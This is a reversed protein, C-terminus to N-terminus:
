NQNRDLLKEKRWAINDKRLNPKWPKLKNHLLVRKASALLWYKEWICGRMETTWIQALGLIYLHSIVEYYRQKWVFFMSTISISKWTVQCLLKIQHLADCCNLQTCNPVMEKLASGRLACLIVMKSWGIWFEDKKFPVKPMELKPKPLPLSSTKSLYHKHNIISHQGILIALWHM